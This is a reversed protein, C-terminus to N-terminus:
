ILLGGLVRFTAMHRLQRILASASKIISIQSEPPSGQHHTTYWTTGSSIEPIHDNGILFSLLFLFLPSFPQFFFIRAVQFNWSISAGPLSEVFTKKPKLPHM